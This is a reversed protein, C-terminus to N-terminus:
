LNKAEKKVYYWLEDVEMMIVKENEDPFPEIKLYLKTGLTSIWQLISFRAAGLLQTIHKM